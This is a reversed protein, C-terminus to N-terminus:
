VFSSYLLRDSLNITQERFRASDCHSNSSPRTRTPSPPLVFMLLRISSAARMRALGIGRRCSSFSSPPASAPPMRPVNPILRALACTAACTAGAAGSVFGLLHPLVVQELPYVHQVVPVGGNQAVDGFDQQPLKPQSELWLQQVLPDVGNRAVFPFVHQPLEEQSVLWMQQPM